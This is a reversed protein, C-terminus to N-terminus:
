FTKLVKVQFDLGSEPRSQRVHAMNARFRCSYDSEMGSTQRTYFTEMGRVRRELGKGDLGGMRGAARRADQGLGHGSRFYSEDNKDENNGM